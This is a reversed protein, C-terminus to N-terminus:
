RRRDSVGPAPRQRAKLQRHRWNLLLVIGAIVVAGLVLLVPDSRRPSLRSILDAGLYALGGGAVSGLVIAALTARRSLGLLRGFISGGVAGTAAVPLMVFAVLGAFTARRMWPHRALIFQGDDVLQVMRPGFFPIRFLFGAHYVLLIATMLDMWCVLAFLEGRSFFRRVEALEPDAGAGVVGGLIVFRGFFFFTAVATALLRQVYPGGRLWWLVALVVGTALLPGLLTVLWVVPQRRRFDAGFAREAEALHRASSDSDAPMATPADM